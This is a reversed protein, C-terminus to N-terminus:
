NRSMLYTTRKNLIVFGGHARVDAQLAYWRCAVCDLLQLETSPFKLFWSVCLNCVRSREVGRVILRETVKGVLRYVFIDVRVNRVILFLSTDYVIIYGLM